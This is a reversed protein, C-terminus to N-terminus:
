LGLMQEKPVQSFKRGIKCEWYKQKRSKRTSTDSQVTKVYPKTMCVCQQVSMICHRRPRPEPGRCDKVSCKKLALVDHKFGRNCACSSCVEASLVECANSSVKRPVLGAAM